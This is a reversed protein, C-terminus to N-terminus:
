YSRDYCALWIMLRVSDHGNRNMGEATGSYWNQEFDQNENM